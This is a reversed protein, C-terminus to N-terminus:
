FIAPGTNDPAQAITSPFLVVPPPGIWSAFRADDAAARGMILRVTSSTTNTIRHRPINSLRDTGGGGTGGPSFTPWNALLGNVALRPTRAYSPTRVHMSNDTTVVRQVASQPKQRLDSNGSAAANGDQPNQITSMIVGNTGNHYFHWNTSGNAFAYCAAINGSRTYAFYLSSNNAMPIAMAWRSRHWFFPLDTDTITLGPIDVCVYSPIMALTKLSRVVEGSTYQDVSADVDLVGGMGSQLFAPGVGTSSAPTFSPPCPCSLSFDEGGAVEVMFDISSSTEGSTVLPDLITMTLGGISSLFNTYATPVVYPVKFVFQSADKLDFVECYSFPQPLGSAVELAPITNSLVGSGLIDQLGPVFSVIVRGGHFKTKSFTFRFEMSGRWYRFMSGVYCLTSVAIANTTLTSSAPLPINGGPRSSNTRFWLASPTISAGYIISGTADTTTINGVFIQSFQRLVFSLAMEDVDSGGLTDDVKLANRQYPGVVFSADPLDVNGDGIYGNRFVRTIPIEIPPKSYGFSRAAGSSAELFWSLPGGVSSLSPVLGSIYKVTTAATGLAGSVSFKAKEADAAGAQLVATGVSQPISGVLDLDHLSIMVKYTPANAGTLTRYPLVASLAWQGISETGTEFTLPLFDDQYLFPIDFQTMTTEAIDHRVHPLNTVLAPNLARRFTLAADTTIDDQGYQFSQVLLAQQFPTSATTVTFRTRFRLGYVGALRLKGAPFYTTFLASTTLGTTIVPGRTTPINGSFILRPREFYEKLDQFAATPKFVPKTAVGVKFDTCAENSIYATEALNESVPHLTLGEVFDCSQKVDRVNEEYNLTTASDM